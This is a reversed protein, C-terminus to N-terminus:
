RVISFLCTGVVCLLLLGVFGAVIIILWVQPHIRDIDSFISRSLFETRAPRDEPDIHFLVADESTDKASPEPV